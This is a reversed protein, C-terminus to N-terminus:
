PVARDSFAVRMATTRLEEIRAMLQDIGPSEKGAARAALLARGLDGDAAYREGLRVLSADDDMAEFPVQSHQRLLVTNAFATDTHLSRAASYEIRMNDDTNREISGALELIVPRDMYYLALFAEVQALDAAVLSAALVPSSRLMRRVAAAHLKLPKDSGALILDGEDIRFLRVYAYVDAFTALLSRLDDPELGYTQLWQVWVGDRAMKRKGLTFFERTFLNAVGTLWPNSPESSILDYTGDETLFLHNRADNLIVRVRPDDLPRHNHENFARSAAVVAPELEAIDIRAPGDHLTVCGSTIGSGLGIVLVNRAEPRFFFGLHGLMTQTTLDWRSSADTKGNTALWINGSDPQRGVTVVASLGEEYFLLEGRKQVFEVMGERTPQELEHIYKYAGSTMLMPNWRTPTGFVVCFSLSALAASSLIRRRYTWGTMGLVALIAAVTCFAAAARVTGVIQLAPLLLFGGAFAGLVAGMTNAGYLRGVPGSLQLRDGAHARVLFPFAAGMCLTAPMMVALALVLNGVWLLAPSSGLWGYLWVFAFPMRGYLLTTLVSTMAVCVLMGALCGLVGNTGRRRHVRDALSGGVWGGVALGILFGLLMLSFTYASGGLVLVLLRFWALEFMLGSFGALGAIMLLGPPTLSAGGPWRAQPAARLPLPASGASSLIAGLALLANGVVVIWITTRMGLFPLLIFGGCAAGVVAGLTNAGYIRGVWTSRRDTQEEGLRALLPLTAGMCITPPVLLAGLLAFQFAAFGLPSPEVSRWFALYVPTALNLVLPFLLAYLGIAAELVAYAVLPRRVLHAWRAAVVSGIALGAMFAALVTCVAMQSTGFLLGLQRVWVTEYILSTAGSGFLLLIM